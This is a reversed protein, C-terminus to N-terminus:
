DSLTDKHRVMQLQQRLPQQQQRHQQQQQTSVLQLIHMEKVGSTQEMSSVCRKGGILEKADKQKRSLSVDVTLMLFQLYVKCLKICKEVKRVRRIKSLLSSFIENNIIKWNCSANSESLNCTERGGIDLESQSKVNVQCEVSM